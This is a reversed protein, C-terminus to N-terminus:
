QETKAFRHRVPDLFNSDRQKEVGPLKYPYMKMLQDSVERFTIRGGAAAIVNAQQTESLGTGELFILANLEDPMEIKENALRRVAKEAALVTHQTSASKDSILNEFYDKFVRRM